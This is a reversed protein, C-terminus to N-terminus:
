WRFKLGIEIVRMPQVTTLDVYGVGSRYLNYRATPNTVNPNRALTQDPLNYVSFGDAFTKGNAKYQVSSSIGTRRVNNFAIYASARLEFVHQEHIRIM